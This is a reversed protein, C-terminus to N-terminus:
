RSATELASKCAAGIATAADTVRTGTVVQIAGTAECIERVRGSNKYDLWVVGVGAEKCAKLWKICAASEGGGGYQGDSCVVVLRAGRGELLNLTGDLARFGLDFKETGDVASYLNVNRLREGPYLVPFVSNGFYVSAATGHIREVARGVIWASVAIPEMAYGMSGSIDCMIGVTLNPDEVHKRVTERWPTTYLASGGQKRAATAQIAASVSLRGPPTHSDRKTVLRDRYKARKLQRAIESAVAREDTTAPRSGQYHSDTVNGDGSSDRNTRSFVQQAHGRNVDSQKQKEARQRAHEQAQERARQDAIDSQVGFEASVRDADIAAFLADLAAQLDASDSDESEEPATEQVIRAFKRALEFMRELDEPAKLTLFERWIKRLAKLVADPLYKSIEERIKKVDSSKLVGADVRGLALVALHAAATVPTPHEIAESGEKSDHLVIGLACARLFERNHPMLLVGNREIRPEDMLSFWHESAPDLILHSRCMEDTTYLAHLSEHLVAGAAKPWDFHTERETFDGIEPPRVTEGFAIDTNVEIEQSVPDYIAAALGRGGDAGIYALLDRRGSWQNALQGIQANLPLWEDAVPRLTRGPRGSKTFHM